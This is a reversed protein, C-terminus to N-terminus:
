RRTEARVLAALARNEDHAGLERTAAVYLELAAGAVRSRTAVDILLNAREHSNLRPALRLAGEIVPDSASREIARGLVRSLDHSSSVRSAAAFFADASPESLAGRDIFTMLVSAQDHSNSMTGVVGFADAMVTPSPSPTAAVAMLVRRQDHSSSMSRALSVFAASTAARIGGRQALTILLNARDHNSGLSSAAELVAASVAPAAPTLAMLATLTRGQDHDSKIAMSARAIAVRSADTLAPLGAMQTLVTAKDHDSVLDDPIKEAIRRLLSDSPPAQRLLESYYVRKVYSSNSLRTMIELVADPGGRALHRAVREEAFMGSSRVLRDLMAALFLRGEPEYDRAAGAQTFAREISGGSRGRLTLRAGRVTGDSISVTAGEEVTAIDREDESLRFAGSWRMEIKDGDDSWSM